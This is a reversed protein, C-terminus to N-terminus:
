WELVEIYYNDEIGNEKDFRKIDKIFELMEHYYPTSWSWEKGNSDTGSFYYMYNSSDEMDVEKHYTWVGYKKNVRVKKMKQGGQRMSLIITGYLIYM